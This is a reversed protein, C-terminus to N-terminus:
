VELIYYERVVFMKLIEDHYPISKIQNIGYMIRLSFLGVFSSLSSRYFGCVAFIIFVVSFLSYSFM